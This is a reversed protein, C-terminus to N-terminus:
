RPKHRLFHNRGQQPCSRSFLTQDIHPSIRVPSQVKIRNFAAGNIRRTPNQRKRIRCILPLKFRAKTNRAAPVRVPIPYSKCRSSSPRTASRKAPDLQRKSLPGTPCESPSHAPAHEKAICQQPRCPEAVDSVCKGSLPDLTSPARVTQNKQFMCFLQQILFCKAISCTSATTMVSFGLSPGCKGLIRSATPLSGQADAGILNMQFCLRVFPTRVRDAAPFGDRCM